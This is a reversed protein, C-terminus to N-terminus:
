DGQDILVRRVARVRHGTNPKDNGGQFGNTFYQILAYAPHVSYETSAWYWDANFAEVGITHFAIVATQAPNTPTYVAGIPVSNPNAGSQPNQNGEIGSHSSTYNTETTPKLYRYCLELEDRSPLYWDTYGGETLTCCYQAAPHTSDNMMRTNLVGNNVSQTNPTATDTTKLPIYTTESCGPSVILAYCEDVLRIVGAFAGGGFRQGVRTPLKSCM